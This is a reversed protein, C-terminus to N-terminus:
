QQGRVRFEEALFPDTSLLVLRYQGPTLDENLTETETELAAKSLTVQDTRSEGPPLDTGCGGFGDASTVLLDRWREDRYKQVTWPNGCGLSVMAESTNTVTFEFTETLQVTSTSLSLRVRDHDYAVSHGGFLATLPQQESKTVSCGSLATLGGISLSLLTRRSCHGGM